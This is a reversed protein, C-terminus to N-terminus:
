VVEDVVSGVLPEGAYEQPPPPPEEQRIPEPSAEVEPSQPAATAEPPPTEEVPPSEYVVQYSGSIPDLELAM